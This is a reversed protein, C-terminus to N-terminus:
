AEYRLGSLPSGLAILWNLNSVEDRLVSTLCGLVIASRTKDLGSLTSQSPFDAVTAAPRPAIEAVTAKADALSSAASGPIFPNPLPTM